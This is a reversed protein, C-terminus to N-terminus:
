IKKKTKKFIYDQLNKASTTIKRGSEKKKIDALTNAAIEAAIKRNEKMNGVSVWEELSDELEQEYKDLKLDKFPDKKTM